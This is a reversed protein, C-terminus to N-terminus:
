KKDRPKEPLPPPPKHTDVITTPKVPSQEHFDVSERFGGKRPPPGEQKKVPPKDKAPM